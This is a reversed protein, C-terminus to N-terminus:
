VLGAVEDLGFMLNFCQLAQGAAGKGLNDIVSQIVLRDGGQVLDHATLLCHNAHLVRATAIEEGPAALHVLPCDVYTEQWCARVANADAGNSVAHMTAFIGRKMPVLHPVFVLDGAALERGALAALHQRMEPLHRHGSVKYARYNGEVEAFLMDTDAQRGAGTVGSACDALLPPLVLGERLLPALALLVSTPYCGPVAVLQAGALHPRCFEALGYVAKDLWETAPHEMGYWAQWEAADDLRFDASLDLVRVGKALLAPAQQAAVGTPAAFFVAQCDGFLEDDPSGFRVADWGSVPQGLLEAVPRGLYQRSSAAVLEAQPHRALLRLLELGTYGSAGVIGVPISM